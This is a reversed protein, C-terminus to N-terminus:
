SRKTYSFSVNLSIQEIGAETKWISGSVSGSLDRAADDHMLDLLSKAANFAQDIDAEHVPQSVPVKALEDRIALELEGKTARIAGISYSM